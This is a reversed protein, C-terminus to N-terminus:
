VERILAEMRSATHPYREAMRTARETLSYGERRLVLDYLMARWDNARVARLEAATWEPLPKAKRGGTTGDRYRGVTIM